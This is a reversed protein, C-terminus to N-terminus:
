AESGQFYKFYAGSSGGSVSTIGFSPPNTGASNGGPGVFFTMGVSGTFHVVEDQMRSALAPPGRYYPGHELRVAAIDPAFFIRQGLGRPDREPRLRVTRGAGM